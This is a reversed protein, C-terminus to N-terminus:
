DSDMAGGDANELLLLLEGSVDEEVRAPHEERWGSSMTLGHDRCGVAPLHEM